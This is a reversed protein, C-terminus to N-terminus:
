YQSSGHFLFEVSLTSCHDNFQLMSLFSCSIFYRFVCFGPYWFLGKSQSLPKFIDLSIAAETTALRGIVPVPGQLQGYSSAFKLARFFVAVLTPAM